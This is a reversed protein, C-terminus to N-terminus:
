RYGVCSSYNSSLWFIGILVVVMAGLCAGGMGLNTLQKGLFAGLLSLPIAMLIITVVCPWFYGSGPLILLGIVIIGVPFLCGIGITVLYSLQKM